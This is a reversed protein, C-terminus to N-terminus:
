RGKPPTALLFTEGVRNLAWGQGELTKISQALEPSLQFTGSVADPWWHYTLRAMKSDAVPPADPHRTLFGCIGESTVWAALDEVHPTEMPPTAQASRAPPTLPRGWLAALIFDTVHDGAFLCRPDAIGSHRFAEPLLFADKFTLTSPASYFQFWLRGRMPFRPSVALFVLLGALTYRVPAKALKGQGGLWILGATLGFAYPLSFLLRYSAYYTYREAFWFMIQPFFFLYLPLLTLVAVFPFQRFALVAGAIALAGMIGFTDMFPLERGWVRFLKFSTWAFESRAPVEGLYIGFILLGLFTAGAIKIGRDGWRVAVCRGTFVIVASAVALGVFLLESRHNAAILALCLGAMAVLGPSPRREGRVIGALQALLYLYAGYALPTSSLAYYRLFSFVNSGFFGVILAVNIYEWGHRFGFARSVYFFLYLLWTQWFAGIAGLAALWLSDPVWKLLSWNFFYAFKSFSEHGALGTATGWSFIRRVHEWNDSPYEWYPGVWWLVLFVAVWGPRLRRIFIVMGLLVALHIGGFLNALSHPALGCWAAVGYLFLYIFFLILWACTVIRGIYSVFTM